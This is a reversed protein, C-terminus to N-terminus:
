GCKTHKGNKLGKEGRKGNMQQGSNPKNNKEWPKKDYSELNCM